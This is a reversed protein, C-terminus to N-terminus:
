RGYLKALRNIKEALEPTAAGPSMRWRWNGGGLTSPTNMRARDDLGFYDQMPIVATDAVSALACRIFAWNGERGDKIGFYDLALAIDEPRVSKFWGLATTNDHTGTYVVCNREFTHPM